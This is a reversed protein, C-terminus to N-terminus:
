ELAWPVMVLLMLLIWLAITQQKLESMAMERCHWQSQGSTIGLRAPAFSLRRVKKAARSASLVHVHPSPRQGAGRTESANGPREHIEAADLKM